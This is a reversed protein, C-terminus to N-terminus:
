EAAAPDDPLPEAADASDPARGAAAANLLRVADPELCVRRYIPKQIERIVGRDIVRQHADLTALRAEVVGAIVSERALARATAAQAAELATFRRADELWGRSFWGAGAALALGVALAFLRLTM